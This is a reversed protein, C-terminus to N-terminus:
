KKIAATWKDEEPMTGAGDYVKAQWDEDTLRKELPTAFEYHDYVAGVTLRAGNIDKVATYILNPKGTAEYLIQNTLADTHIDAVLGARMEKVTLEEGPLAEAVRSLANSVTRLREFDNDSIEQNQLEAKVIDQIFKVDDIFIQYKYDFEEPFMDRNKLGDRTVQALDAIKNWFVLDPEVYGKPVAPPKEDGPGGGREAYSQKAYLLTDHKLETYSGLVTGLNKKQWASSKMFFPYGQGYDGLLSRFSNLWGWYINQTWVSPVYQAFETKLQGLVKAIIKDSKPAKATVWQNLYDNVTQNAPAIVALPELATPMSPLKQGTESDASEYGQTLKNLVYADPTFRQGMFRFQLTEKLLEEKSIKRGTIDIIESLIRPSPLDAVAGSIFQQLKADNVVAQPTAGDGYVKKMEQTFQYPTLDDTEGVFFDIVDMMESWKKSLKEDSVQLTNVQGTILLADRTLEPSKLTFGMRGYWMMAMFYSKLINNKTYHSRPVFQTYDNIFDLRLPTFLPSPVNQSADKILALEAAATDYIEDSLAFGDYTKDALGFNLNGKALDEQQKSQAGVFEAYTPFDGPQLVKVASNDSGADLIVLPVLYYVALQRYSAKLISDTAQNYNNISDEFLVKTMAALAPQMKTEELRQFSRDILLHYLHLGFDSTIFVANQPARNYISEGGNLNNYTDVFDDTGSDQNKIINNNALFFNNDALAQNEAASFKVGSKEFNNLNSLSSLAVKEGSLNAKVAAEKAATQAFATKILGFNIAKDYTPELVAMKDAVEPAPATFSSAATPASKQGNAVALEGGTEVKKGSLRQWLSLTQSSIATVKEEGLATLSGGTGTYKFYVTGLAFALVFAFAVAPVMFKVQWFKMSSKQRGSLIRNKLEQRFSERAPKYKFALSKIEEEAKLLPEAESNNRRINDEKNNFQGNLNETM